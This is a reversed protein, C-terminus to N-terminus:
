IGGRLFKMKNNGIVKSNAEIDKTVVCGAGILANEGITIGPLLTSNAGISAGKKIIVSKQKFDKNKSKPYKDNCFTVNSGVFVNDEIRAGDWLQVGCKITVNDGIIVDNEIFVNACVNCNKGIKAGALVICFQWINTGEGINKSQVDALKHIM